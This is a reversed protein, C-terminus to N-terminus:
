IKGQLGFYMGKLDTQILEGDKDWKARMGKYGLVMETNKGMAIEVGLQYTSLSGGKGSICLPSAEAFFRLNNRLPSRWGLGLTLATFHHNNERAFNRTTNELKEDLSVFNLGTISYFGEEQKRFFKTMSLQRNNVKLSSKVTDGPQYGGGGFSFGSTLRQDTEMKVATGSYIFRTGPKKAFLELKFQLINKSDMGLDGRFQIDNGGSGSRTYGSVSPRWYEPTLSIGATTKSESGAWAIEGGLMGTAATLCGALMFIQGWKKICLDM